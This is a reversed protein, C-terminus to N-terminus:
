IILEKEHYLDIYVEKIIRDDIVAEMTPVYADTITWTFDKRIVREGIDGPEYETSDTVGGEITMQAWVGKSGDGVSDDPGIWLHCQPRFETLFNFILMDADQMLATFLSATYTLEYVLFPKIKKYAVNNNNDQVKSTLVHEFPPNKEKIQTINSHHFTLIPLWNNGQSPPAYLPAGGADGLQATSSGMAFARRPTSFIVPIKQGLKEIRPLYMLDELWKKVYYHYEAFIPYQTRM